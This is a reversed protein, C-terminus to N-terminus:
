GSRKEDEDNASFISEPFQLDDRLNIRVRDTFRNPKFGEVTSSIEPPSKLVPSFRSLNQKPINTTFCILLRNQQPSALKKGSIGQLIENM